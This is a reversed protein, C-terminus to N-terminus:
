ESLDYKDQRVRLATYGGSLDMERRTFALLFATTLAALAGIEFAIVYSGTFDFILGGLAAGIAIGASYGVNMVGMITGISRGGFSDSVRVLNVVANGGYFLGFVISFLYFAWLEHAWILWVLAGPGMFALIIGPMKGGVIDSIRGGILRAVIQFVGMLSLITAAEITSIGLDTAYPVVHTMILGICTSFLFWIAFLLWFSRTRAAQELSLGHQQVDERGVPTINDASFKVGDPQSGMESPDRRLLTALSIVVLGAILGMVVYSHRWDLVSILYAVLPSLILAGLGTGSTAIGIAIGRKKDFWRSIVSMLLPVAAATGIGVLLSYSIFLQWWSSTLGTVVLGIGTFLGMLLFVRRPGYRDLAWGNIVGFVAVSVMYASFVSSTAARTLEFEAELSKFFVGFTFRTGVLALIILLAAAVIVWGYFVKDKNTPSM